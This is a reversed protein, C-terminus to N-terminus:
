VRVDIEREGNQWESCDQDQARNSRLGEGPRASSNGEFLGKRLRPAADGARGEGPRGVGRVSGFLRGTDLFGNRASNSAGSEKRAACTGAPPM